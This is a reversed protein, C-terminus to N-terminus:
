VGSYLFSPTNFRSDKVCQKLESAVANKDFKSSSTPAKGLAHIASLIEVETKIAKLKKKDKTTAVTITLKNALAEVFTDSVNARALNMRTLMYKTAEVHMTNNDLRTYLYSSLARNDRLLAMTKNSSVLDAAISKLVHYKVGFFSGQKHDDHNVFSGLVHVADTDIYNSFAGFGGDGGEESGPPPAPKYKKFRERIKKDEELEQELDHLDMGGVSAWMKMTIPLGQEQLSKLIEIYNADSTPSLSKTWHIKPLILDSHPIKMGDAISKSALSTRVGHARDAEKRKVFEHSRALMGFVKNEFVRKELTYRLVKLNEIFVSLAADMTNYSAEGTLFTESLGFSNLKATKLYDAEESIKWFDGGSRVENAEIGHRTAIIAGVPDEESAQFLSSVFDIEEPQPEWQGEIGVSLHLISRTRRRAASITSQMLAKEIAFYPIIRLMMSTGKWDTSTVKRPVFLTTLPELPYSGKKLGKLMDEPMMNKALQLRKDKSDLFVKMEPSATLDLLPDFGRIPVPTINVFKPNHPIIGRWSGQESDYLLSSIFRGYTLYERTLEPMTEEPAFAEMATEYIRMIAPDDVGSLSWDSWPLTSILDISPGAVADREYMMEFLQMLAIDSKPTIDDMLSTRDLSETNPAYRNTSFGAGAQTNATTRYGTTPQYQLAAGALAKMSSQQNNRNWTKAVAIRKPNSDADGPSVGLTVYSM